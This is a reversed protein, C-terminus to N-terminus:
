SKTIDTKDYAKTVLNDGERDTVQELTTILHTGSQVHIVLPQAVSATVNTPDISTTNPDVQIVRLEIPKSPPNPEPYKVTVACVGNGRVDKLTHVGPRLVRCVVIQEKQLAKNDLLVEKDSEIRITHHGEGNQVSVVVFGKEVVTFTANIPWRQSLDIQVSPEAPSPAVVLSFTKTDGTRDTAVGRYRAAGNVQAVIHIQPTLTDTDLETVKFIYSNFPFPIV